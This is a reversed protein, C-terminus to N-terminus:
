REGSSNLTINIKNVKHQLEEIEKAMKTKIEEFHKASVYNSMDSPGARALTLPGGRRGSNEAKEAVKEDDSDVQKPKSEVKRTRVVAV